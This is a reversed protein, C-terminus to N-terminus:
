QARLPPFITPDIGLARLHRAEPRRGDEIARACACAASLLSFFSVIGRFFGGFRATPLEARVSRARLPRISFDTM